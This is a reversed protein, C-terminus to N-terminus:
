GRFVREYLERFEALTVTRFLFLTVIYVIGASPIAILVKTYQGTNLLRAAAIVTYFLIGSLLLRTYVSPSFGFRVVRMSYRSCLTFIITGSLLTALAAGLGGLRPILLLNAMVNVIAGVVVARATLGPKGVGSLVGTNIVNLNLIFTAVLIVRLTNAGGVYNSGFLLNLIIDPYAFAVLTVPLLLLAMYKYAGVVLENILRRRKREWLEAVLPMLVTVVVFGLVQLMNATPLVVQYVGVEELSSFLTLLTTDTYVLLVSAVGSLMVPMGYALLQKTMTSSYHATFMGKLKSSLYGISVISLFFLVLAYGVMVGLPGYKLLIWIISFLLVAQGLRLYAQLDARQAGRAYSLFVYTLGGFFVASGYLQVLVAASGDGIYRTAIWSGGFLSVLLILFGTLSFVFLGSLLITRVKQLNNTVLYKATYKVMAEEMGLQQFISVLGFLAMISYIMGYEAVTLTRALLLRLLYGFVNALVSAIGLWLVGFFVRRTYTTM